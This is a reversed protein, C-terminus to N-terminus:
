VSRAQSRRLAWTTGILLALEVAVAYLQLPETWNGIDDTADPLGVSRSVVLGVLPALALGATLLLGERRRALVLLAAVVGTVELVRYGWGLYAPDKLMTLGGQDLVHVYSVGVALAAIVLLLVTPVARIVGTVAPRTRTISSAM